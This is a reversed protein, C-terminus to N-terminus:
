YVPHREIGSLTSNIWLRGCGNQDKDLEKEKDKDKRAM